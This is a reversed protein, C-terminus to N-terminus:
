REIVLNPTISGVKVFLFQELAEELDAGDKFEIFSFSYEGNYSRKVVLSEIEGFKEFKQRLDDEM